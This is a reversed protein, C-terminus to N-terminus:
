ATEVMKANREAKRSGLQRKVAGASRHSRQYYQLSSFFSFLLNRDADPVVAVGTADNERLLMLM